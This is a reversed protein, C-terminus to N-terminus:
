LSKEEATPIIQHCTQISETEICSIIKIADLFVDLVDLSLKSRILAKYAVKMRYSLQYIIRWHPLGPNSGQTSFIEQLLSLSGVGTNKAQLIGHVICHM